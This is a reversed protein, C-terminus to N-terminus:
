MSEKAEKQISKMISNHGPLPSFDIFKQVLVKEHFQLFLVTFV